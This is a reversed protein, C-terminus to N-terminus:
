ISGDFQAEWVYLHLVGPVNIFQWPVAERLWPLLLVVIVEDRREVGVEHGGYLGEDILHRGFGGFRDAFYVM